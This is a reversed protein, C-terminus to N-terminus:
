RAVDMKSPVEGNQRGAARVLRNKSVVDPEDRERRKAGFFFRQGSWKVGTIAFAVASLSSYAKGNWAFGDELAMVTETRGRWERTLVTGPKLVLPPSASQGARRSPKGAASGEDMQSTPEATTQDAALRDLVRASQRDLDGFADAQIRYIMLRFLLARPIHAPALRGWRNYWQVRLEDLSLGEVRVLETDIPSREVDPESLHRGNRAGLRRM